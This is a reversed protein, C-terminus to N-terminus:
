PVLASNKAIVEIRDGGKAAQADIEALVLREAELWDDLDCGHCFGRREYLEYAKEAIRRRAEHDNLGFQSVEKVPIDGRRSNRNKSKVM